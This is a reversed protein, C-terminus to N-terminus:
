PWSRYASYKHLGDAPLDKKTALLATLRLASTVRMRLSAAPRRYRKLEAM